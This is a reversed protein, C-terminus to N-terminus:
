DNHSDHEDLQEIKKPCHLLKINKTKDKKSALEKSYKDNLKHIELQRIAVVSRYTRFIGKKCFYFALLFIGAFLLFALCGSVYFSAPVLQLFEQPLFPIVM